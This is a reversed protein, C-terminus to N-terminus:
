VLLNFHKIKIGLKLLKQADCFYRNTVGSTTFYEHIKSIISFFEDIYPVILCVHCIVLNLRHAMCHIYIAKPMFNQQLIVHVGNHQGSM